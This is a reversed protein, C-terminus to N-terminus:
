PTAFGHVLPHVVAGPRRDLEVELRSRDGRHYAIFEEVPHGNVGFSVNRIVLLASGRPVRLSRALDADATTAEISRRGRTLQVGYRSELLLYLSQRRMDEDLLGPALAFPLHTITLAWPEGDLFRLRELAILPTGVDVQLLEAQRSEAEVVELRRVESVLEAGRAAADEFLGTLSQALGEVTKPHAIFTGKGNVRIIVGAAEMDSLAQRVVTRSVEYRRELEHDGPIRDGPQLGRHKIDSLLAQKLQYYLPLPSDRDLQPLKLDKSALQLDPM